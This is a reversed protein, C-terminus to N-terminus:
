DTESPHITKKPSMKLEDFFINIKWLGIFIFGFGVFSLILITMQVIPLWIVDQYNIISLIAQVLLSTTLIFAGISILRNSAGFLGKIRLQKAITVLSIMMCVSFLMMRLIDIEAM